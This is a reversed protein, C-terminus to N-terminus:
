TTPPGIALLVKTLQTNIKEASDECNNCTKQASEVLESLNKVKFGELKQLKRRIDPVLQSFFALCMTRRNKTAEPDIPTYATM